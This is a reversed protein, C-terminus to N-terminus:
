NAYNAPFISQALIILKKSAIYPNVLGERSCMTHKKFSDSRHAPRQRFQPGLTVTTTLAYAAGYTENRNRM